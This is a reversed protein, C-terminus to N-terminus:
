LLDADSDDFPPIPRPNTVSTFTTFFFLAIIERYLADPSQVLRQIILLSPWRPSPFSEEAVGLEHLSQRHEPEVGPM